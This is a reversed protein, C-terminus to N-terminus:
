STWGTSRRFKFLTMVASISDRFGIKKGMEKSRPSYSVPVEVIKIGVHHIRMSIEHDTEFGRTQARWEEFLCKPYLKYGTLMDTIWRKTIAFYLVSLVFNFFRQPIGQRPWLGLCGRWGRVLVRAGLVRSGYVVCNEIDFNEISELMRPIDKPDYELDADQILVYRGSAVEIGHQVAAGKGRNAGLQILRLSGSVREDVVLSSRDTSGDDVVIIEVQYGSLANLLSDLLHGIFKEENYM